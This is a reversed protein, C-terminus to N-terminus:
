GKGSEDLIPAEKNNHLAINADANGSYDTVMGKADIALFSDVANLSLPKGAAAEIQAHARFPTGFLSFSVVLGLNGRLAYLLPM